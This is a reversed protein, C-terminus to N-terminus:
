GVRRLFDGLIRNFEEPRCLPTPDGSDPVHVLETRPVAHKLEDMFTSSRPWSDTGVVALLPYDAAAHAPLYNVLNIAIRTKFGDWARLRSVAEALYAAAAPWRAYQQRMIDALLTGPLLNSVSGLYVSALWAAKGVTTPRSDSYTDVIALAQIRDPHRAAVHQAIVGGFSVGCVAARAIGLHDLLAAVDGAIRSRIHRWGTIPGSRHVGRADFVVVRHSASFHEVQARWMDAGSSIAHILVLAPGDGHTEYYIGTGDSDLYPM